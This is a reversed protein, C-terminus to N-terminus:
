GRAKATTKPKGGASRPKTRANKNKSQKPLLLKAADMALRKQDAARTYHTAMKGTTWGFLAMLQRDSAGNEAARTAGAKRLGHASGPCSAARCAKKFWNGFSEKVFPQGRETILFALDGTNTAEISKALPALVPLAVVEGTKETRLTIVGDRVHQRGLKVVDGRRLGTYLLLDFALRQRSGLPWKAEFRAAEEDTWTHFGIDDNSGKLLKVGICPNVKVLKGDGAAWEFLGRMAKLFNNAAHPRDQRRERGLIITTPTIGAFSADGASELVQRFINERQRRTAVSLRAWASSARYRDVAWRLSGVKPGKKEPAAGEIAARYQAWFEPSDYEATLRIRPGHQRRVYWRFVGHRNKEHHLYPPRKKPM